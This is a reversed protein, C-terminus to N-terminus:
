FGGKSSRFPVFVHVLEGESVECGAQAGAHGDDAGSDADALEGGGGHVARCALGGGGAIDAGRHDDRGGEDFAGRQEGDHDAQEEGDGLLREREERLPLLGIFAWTEGTSAAPIMSRFGPRVSHVAIVKRTRMPTSHFNAKPGIERISTSRSVVIRSAMSEARWSRSSASFSRACCFSASTLAWRSAASSALRFWCSISAKRDWSVAWARLSASSRTAWARFVIWSSFFSATECSRASTASRATAAAARMTLDLRSSFVCRWSTSSYM